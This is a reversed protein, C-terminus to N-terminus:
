GGYWAEQPNSGWPHPEAYFMETHLRGAPVGLERAARAGATVFGPAGAVFVDHRSLDPVVDALVEQVRGAPPPGPARTLTRVYRFQPHEQEWARFRDADIDDEETRGSFLITFPDPVGRLVACEALARIPALGSGGALGVVARSVGPDAVFTGYPGSVLATAGVPLETALWRSTWGGPVETVLMTLRGSLYPANAVSYSRMPVQHDAAGVLVYEGPRHVLPEATPDLALEVVAATRRERAVLVYPVEERPVAALATM